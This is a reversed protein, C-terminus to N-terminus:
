DGSGYRDHDKVECYQASEFCYVEVRDPDEGVEEPTVCDDDSECRKKCGTGPFCRAYGCSYRQFTNPNYEINPEPCVWPGTPSQGGSGAAAEEGSDSGSEEGPDADGDDGSDADATGGGGSGGSSGSDEREVTTSGTDGRGCGAVLFWSLLGIGVVTLTRM